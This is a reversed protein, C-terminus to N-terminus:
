NGANAGSRRSKKEPRSSQRESSSPKDRNNESELAVLRNELTSLSNQLNSAYNMLNEYKEMSVYSRKGNMMEFQRNQPAAYGKSGDSLHRHVNPNDIPIGDEGRHSGQQKQSESVAQHQQQAQLNHPPQQSSRNAASDLSNDSQSNSFEMQKQTEWHQRESNPMVPLFQSSGGANDVREYGGNRQIREPFNQDPYSKQHPMGRNIILRKQSGHPQGLGESSIMRQQRAVPPRGSAGEHNLEAGMSYSGNLQAHPPYQRRQSPHSGEYNHHHYYHIHHYFHRDSNSSQRPVIEDRGRATMQQLYKQSMPGNGQEMTTTTTTTTTTKPFDKRAGNTPNRLLIHGGSSETSDAGSLPESRVDQSNEGHEQPPEQGAHYQLPRWKNLEYQPLDISGSSLSSSPFSGDQNNHSMATDKPTKLIEVDERALLSSVGTSNMLAGGQGIFTSGVNSSNSSSQTQHSGTNDPRAENTASASTDNTVQHSTVSTEENVSPSVSADIDRSTARENTQGRLINGTCANPSNLHRSLADTRAFHRHCKDCQFPKEGTHLKEHRKLDHIRRFLIDCIECRHLKLSTHILEHSVMNHKRTFGQNCIKCFFTKQLGTKSLKSIADESATTKGTEDTAGVSDGTSKLTGDSGTEPQPSAFSASPPPQPMDSTDKDVSNEPLHQMPQLVFACPQRDDSANNDLDSTENSADNSLENSDVKEKQHHHTQSKPKDTSNSVRNPSCHSDSSSDKEDSNELYKINLRSSSSPM